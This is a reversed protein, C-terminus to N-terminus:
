KDDAKGIAKADPPNAPPVVPSPANVQAPANPKAAQAQEVPASYASHMLKQYVVYTFVCALGAFIVTDIGLKKVSKTDKPFFMLKIGAESAYLKADYMARKEPDSLIKYGDRIMNLQTLADATGRMSTTAGLQETVRAYAEDIQEQTAKHPVDLMEYFSIKM